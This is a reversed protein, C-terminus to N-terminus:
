IIFKIKDIVSTIKELNFYKPHVYNMYKIIIFANFHHFFRKRFSKLTACNKNCDNIKEILDFEKIFSNVAPHLEAVSMIIYDNDKKFFSDKIDFFRELERFSQVSYVKLQSDPEDLIKQLAPGTGFPVRDSFRAMPHVLNDEIFSVEGLQFIKQLFYFDEGGQQRGMGGVRVYADASVSFASGVTPYYYPFGVRYLGESYYKLYAEYQRVAHELEVSDGQARHRVNHITGVIKNNNKYRESISTFYNDSVTCDADLSIIVGNPNNNSLFHQVALNMGIRRALGVGAHKRPLNECLISTFRFHEEDFNLAYRAMEDHTKRNQLIIDQNTNEGSNIIVAILVRSEIKNCERLSDLTIFLDPENFCSIVVIFDAKAEFPYVKDTFAQKEKKLYSDWHRM